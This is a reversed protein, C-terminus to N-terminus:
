INNEIFMIEDDTINFSEYINKKNPIPFRQLIRINNFNGWRCINNIFKYLNHDIINKIKICEEKNSCKIFAISQTMGCNDILTSYKDTTSIFVKYGDQFKHPKSSYVTQKPTHILKYKFKDDKDKNIFKKKTYKHLDSSTEVNYKPIDNNDITKLLISQIINNYYLPIYSRVQSKVISQYEKSKWIGTINIDKYSKKNQIIYWTFSSGINKFYKKASHIDLHIIQLETLEKILINRDAFSMWNNPTLFALYGNPKLIKLSKEIFSKILNHNKSARKWKQEKENFYYKAYPPNAVILDYKINEDYKLFDNNNINLNYENNLFIERINNLRELNTDNFHLINELIYKKDFNKKLKEIITIFFNGNGCCPDLIKINNKNWIDVPIKNIIDEVCQIPTPEDNTTKYTSKDINLTKDYYNKLQEYNNNINIKNDLNNDM